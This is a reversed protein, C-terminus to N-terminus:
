GGAGAGDAGDPPPTVPTSVAPVTGAPAPDDAGGGARSVLWVVLLVTVAVIVAIIIKTRDLGTHRSHDVIAASEKIPATM